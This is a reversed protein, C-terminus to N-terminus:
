CGTSTLKLKGGDLFQEKFHVVADVSFALLAVSFITFLTFSQM